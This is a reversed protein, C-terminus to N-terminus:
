LDSVARKRGVAVVLHADVAALGPRWHNAIRKVATHVVRQDRPVRQVGERQTQRVGGRALYAM